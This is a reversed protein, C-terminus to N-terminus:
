FEDPWYNFRALYGQWTQHDGGGIQSPILHQPFPWDNRVHQNSNSSFSLHLDPYGSLSFSNPDEMQEYSNPKMRLMSSHHVTRKPRHPATAPVPPRCRSFARARLVFSCFMMTVLVTALTQLILPRRHTTPTMRMALSRNKPRDAEDGGSLLYGEQELPARSTTRGTNPVPEM